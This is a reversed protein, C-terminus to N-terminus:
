EGKSINLRLSFYRIKLCHMIGQETQILNGMKKSLISFKNWMEKNQNLTLRNKYYSMAMDLDDLIEYENSLRLLRKNEPERNKRIEYSLIDRRSSEYSSLIHDNIDEKKKQVFEDMGLKIEDCIYAYVESFYKDKHESFKENLDTRKKYKELIIRTIFKKLKGKILNIEGKEEFKTM